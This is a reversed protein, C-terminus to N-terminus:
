LRKWTITLVGSTGADDYYDDITLALPATAASRVVWVLPRPTIVHTTSDYSYWGEGREFALDGEADSLWGDAPAATVDALAGPVPVTEFGANLKIHFRQAALEWTGDGDLDASAWAANDTADVQVTAPGPGTPADPAPPAAADTEPQPAIDSACATLTLTLLLFTKM